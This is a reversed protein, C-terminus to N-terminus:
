TLCATNLVIKNLKKAYEYAIQTGSKIQRSFINTSTQQYVLTDCYYFICIDSKEIMHRNRKVYSAKGANLLNQPMYTADYVTLLYKEYETSINPYEARVYIRQIDNKTRKIETVAQLCLDNFNSKSGFLFTDVNMDNAICFFFKKLRCFFEQSAQIKRHGIFTATM